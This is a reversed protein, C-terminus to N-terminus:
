NAYKPEPAWKDSVGSAQYYQEVAKNNYKSLRVSKLSSSSILEEPSKNTPCVGFLELHKLSPLRALPQLSDVLQIKGSSDWDPLTELSLIELNSLLGISELNDVKPLHLVSLYSLKQCKVLFDFSSDPFTAVVLTEINMCEGLPILSEYNCHWVQVSRVKDPTDIEPIQKSKQRMLEIHM